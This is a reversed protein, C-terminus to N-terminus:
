KIINEINILFNEVNEINIRIKESRDHFKDEFIYYIENDIIELNIRGHAVSNRIKYLVYIVDGFRQDKNSITNDIIKKNVFDVMQEVDYLFDKICIKSYNIPELDDDELILSLNIIYLIKFFWKFEIWSDIDEKLEDISNFIKGILNLQNKDKYIKYDIIRDNLQILHTLFNSFETEIDYISKIFYGLETNTVSKGLRKKLIDKYKKLESEDIEIKDVDFITSNIDLFTKLNIYDGSSFVKNNMPHSNTDLKYKEDGKYTVKVFYYKNLEMDVEIYTHKYAISKIIQNLYLKGILDHCLSEIVLGQSKEVGKDKNFIFYYPIIGKPDYCCFCGYQMHAFSNRLIKRSEWASKPTFRFDSGICEYYFTDEVKINFKEEIDDIIDKYKEKISTIYNKTDISNKFYDKELKEKNFLMACSDLFIRFRFFNFINIDVKGDSIDKKILEINFENKYYDEYFRILEINNKLYNSVRIVEDNKNYNIIIISSVSPILM